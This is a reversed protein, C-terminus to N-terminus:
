SKKPRTLKAHLLMGMLIGGVLTGSIARIPNAAIWAGILDIINDM